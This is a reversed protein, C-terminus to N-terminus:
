SDEPPAFFCKPREGPSPECSHYHGSLSRRAEANPFFWRGDILYGDPRREVRGDALPACDHGSCCDVPYWDHAAASSAPAIVALLCVHLARM